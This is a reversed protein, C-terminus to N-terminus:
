SRVKISDLFVFTPVFFLTGTVPRSVELLLDTNGVPDGIFMNELLERPLGMEPFLREYANRGFGMVALVNLDPFRNRISTLM